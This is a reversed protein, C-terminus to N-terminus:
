EASKELLAIFMADTGHRHPWLQVAGPGEPSGVPTITVSDLVARTDCERLEPHSTLAHAVVMRTEAIHPSCTVYAILGGPRLAAIASDLLARQLAALEPVDGPVKRWRSEPRRRLAGLGTCPADVLIRSFSEPHDAGVRRGDGVWVEPQPSFVALANRVLQARAPVVENAVVTAGSLAAEAALLASKGGPGACLDLWREGPVVPRARTLTLAALQSGEDQVRARGSSVAPIRAPDGGTSRAAVPSWSGPTSGALDAVDCLGPLAVLSVAPAANDAELLASLESERGEARLAQRFARIVWVPHSFEISLGADASDPDSLVRERWVERDTRSIARLVGNVFGTASRSAVERTLNVAEHVAAHPAVRMSLLQHCGLRLIDLVAADLSSPARSTVQEIVADYYGQARLTGYTLETALAADATTLKAREIKVPLLLNAYADNVSVAHIVEFAIRRAPQITM